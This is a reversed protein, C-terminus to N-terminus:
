EELFKVSDFVRLISGVVAETHDPPAEVKAPTYHRNAERQVRQLARTAKTQTYTSCMM